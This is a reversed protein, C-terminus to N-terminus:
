AHVGREIRNLLTEGRELGASAWVMDGPRRFELGIARERFWVAARHRSGFVTIAQAMLRESGLDKGRPQHARVTAKDRSM